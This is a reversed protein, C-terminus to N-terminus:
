RRAPVPDSIQLRLALLAPFVSLLHLLFLKLDPKVYNRYHPRSTSSGTKESPSDLEARRPNHHRVPLRSRRLVLIIHHINYRPLIIALQNPNRELSSKQLPPPALPRPPSRSASAPALFPTQRRRQHQQNITSTTAVEIKLYSNSSPAFAQRNRKKGGRRDAKRFRTGDPEMRQMWSGSETAEEWASVSRLEREQRPTSAKVLAARRKYSSFSRSPPRARSAVNWWAEDLVVSCCKGGVVGARSRLLQMVRSTVLGALEDLNRRARRGKASMQKPGM